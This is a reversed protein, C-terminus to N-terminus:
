TLAAFFEEVLGYETIYAAGHDSVSYLGISVDSCVFGIRHLTNNYIQVMWFPHEPPESLLPLAIQEWEGM